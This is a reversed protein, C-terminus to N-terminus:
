GRGEMLTGGPTTPRPWLKIATGSEVCEGQELHQILLRCLMPIIEFETMDPKLSTDVTFVASRLQRAELDIILEIRPPLGAWGIRRRGAKVLTKAARKVGLLISIGVDGGAAGVGVNGEAESAGGEPAVAM